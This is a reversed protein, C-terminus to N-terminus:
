ENDNEERDNSSVEKYDVDIINQNGLLKLLYDNLQRDDFNDFKTIITTNHESTVHPNYNDKMNKKTRELKWAAAKWDKETADQIKDLLMMENEAEGISFQEYLRAYTTDEGNEMDSQGQTLWQSYTKLPISLAQAITHKLYGQHTYRRTKTIIDDTPTTIGSTTVGLSSQQTATLEPNNIITTDTTVM